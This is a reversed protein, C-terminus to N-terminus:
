INVGCLLITDNELGLLGSVVLVMISIPILYLLKSKIAVVNPSIRRIKLPVPYM